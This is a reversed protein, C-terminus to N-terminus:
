AALREYRHYLGNVQPIAVIRGSGPPMIPRPDPCDKDLSFDFLNVRNLFSVQGEISGTIDHKRIVIM